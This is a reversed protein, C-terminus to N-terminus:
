EDEDPNSPSPAERQRVADIAARVKKWRDNFLTTRVIGFRKALEGDTLLALQPDAALMGFANALKDRPTAVRAEIAEVFAEADRMDAYHEQRTDFQGEQCTADVDIEAAAQALDNALKTLVRVDFQSAAAKALSRAADGLQRTVDIADAAGKNSLAPAAELGFPGSSGFLPSSNYADLARRFANLSEIM